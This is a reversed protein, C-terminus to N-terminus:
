VGASVGVGMDASAAPPAGPPASGVDFTAGVEASGTVQARAPAALGLLLLGFAAAGGVAAAPRKGLRIATQRAARMAQLYALDALNAGSRAVARSPGGGASARRGHRENVTRGPCSRGTPVKPVQCADDAARM